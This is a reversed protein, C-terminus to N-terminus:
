GRAVAQALEKERQAIQLDVLEEVVARISRGQEACLVKLRRHKESEIWIAQRDEAM